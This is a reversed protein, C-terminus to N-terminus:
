FPITRISCNLRNFLILNNGVVGLKTYGGNTRYIEHTSLKKFNLVHVAIEDTAHLMWSLLDNAQMVHQLEPKFLGRNHIDAYSFMLDIEAERGVEGCISTMVDKFDSKSIVGRGNLDFM